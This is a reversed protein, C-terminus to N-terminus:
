EHHAHGNLRQTSLHGDKALRRQIRYGKYRQGAKYVVNIVQQVPLSGFGLIMSVGWFKGSLGGESVHFAVSGFEVILVQLASTILLISCFLPNNFMGAFVNVTFSLISEDFHSFPNQLRWELIRYCCSVNM